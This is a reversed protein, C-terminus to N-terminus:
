SPVANVESSSSSSPTPVVNSPLKNLKEILSKLECETLDYQKELETVASDLAAKEKELAPKITKVNREVMVGGVVRFCRREPEVKEFANLVLGHEKSDQTLESIKSNLLKLKRELQSIQERIVRGQDDTSM